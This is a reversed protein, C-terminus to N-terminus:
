KWKAVKMNDRARGVLTAVVASRSVGNAAAIADLKTWDADLLAISGSAKTPKGSAKRGAGQRAGGRNEQKAKKAM